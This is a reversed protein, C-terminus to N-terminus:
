EWSTGWFNFFGGWSIKAEWRADVGPGGDSSDGIPEGPGFRMRAYNEGQEM